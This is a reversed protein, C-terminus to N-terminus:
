SLQKKAKQLILFKEELIKNKDFSNKEYLKLAEKLHILDQTFNWREYYWLAMKEDSKEGSVLDEFRKDGEKRRELKYLIKYLLFRREFNRDAVSLEEALQISVRVSKESEELRGLEFLVDAKEFYWYILAFKFGIQTHGHIAQDYFPIAKEYAKDMRYAAGINGLALYQGRKDGIEKSISFYQNYYEIAKGYEETRTFLVGLNGIAFSAKSKEGLENSILLAEEYDKTAYEHKKLELYASGRSLLVNALARKEDNNRVLKEQDNFYEIAKDFEGKRLYVQGISGIAAQIGFDNELSKNLEYQKNFYELAEDYKGKSFLINSIEGIAKPLKEKIRNKECIEKALEAQELAKEFDGEMRWSRGLQIRAESLFVADKEEESIELAQEFDAKGKEPKGLLRLLDGKKILADIKIRNSKKDNGIKNLLRNYCSLADTNQYNDVHYAGAKHLYDIAKGDQASHEFHFALEPLKSSEEGFIEEFAEGTYQHLDRLRGKLQMEYAAERLMTNKFLYENESMQFWIQDDEIKSLYYEINEDLYFAADRELVKKLADVEFSRGIVAAMKVVEKPQSELRDIRASLISNITGPMQSIRDGKLVWKMNVLQLTDHAKFFELLQQIFFPNGNAKEGLLDMLDKGPAAGMIHDVMQVQLEKPLNQLNIELLPINKNGIIEKQIDIVYGGDDAYRSTLIVSIPYDSVNVLLKNLFYVSDSDLGQIDEIELILPQLLSESLLLNKIAIITNEFRGKADLQAWLGGPTKWGSQAMLVTKSRELEALHAAAKPHESSQLRQLLFDYKNKFNRQNYEAERRPDIKFYRNLFAKFPQLSQKLMQNVPCWHWQINGHAKLAKQIEYSFHSKGIGADGLVSLVGSYTNNFIKNLFDIAQNLEEKRGLMEMDFFREEISKEGKLLYTPTLEAVGKYKLDGIDKFNFNSVNALPETVLVQGWEAQIMLRAALNVKSGICNYQIREPGGIFGAYVFGETVGARFQVSSLRESNKLLSEVELLFRLAREKNDEFTVPAGFYGLMMAGKDGFDFEKFYGQLDNFKELLVSAFEDFIDKEPIDKFSLFICVVNRFEGTAKFEIVSEPIFQRVVEVELESPSAAEYVDNKNIFDKLIYFESDSIEELNLAPLSDKIKEDIIVQGKEAQMEAEACGKIVEGKFFFSKNKEGVIGWEVEGVSVGVKVALYFTGFKTKLVSRESIIKQIEFACTLINEPRDNLSLPFIGTFADGTYYPIFGGRQYVANVMPEFIDNLIGFLIEAGEMGKKMLAETLPTFGSIDVFLAHANFVGDYKNQILKEQIIHPIFNKM